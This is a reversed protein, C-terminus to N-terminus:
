RLPFSLILLQDGRMVEVRARGSAAVDEFHKRDQEVNGVAVGNVRVVLDGAQLGARRVEPSPTNSVRYGDPTASVSFQDLVTQPNDAIKQRYVDIFEQPSSQSAVSSDANAGPISARIAAVGASSQTEPFSLTERRGAVVLVVHDAGVSDLVGGGPTSEGIRVALPVGAAESILATSQDSPNALIIGRLTLNATTAQLPTEAPAALGFPALALIPALDVPLDAAPQSRIAPARIEPFHGLAHWTVGAAAVAVTVTLAAALALLAFSTHSPRIM